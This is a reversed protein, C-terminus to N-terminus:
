KLSVLFHRLCLFHQNKHGICVARLTTGQYSVARYGNLSINCHDQLIIQFTDYLTKDEKPGIALM